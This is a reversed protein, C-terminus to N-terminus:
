QGQMDAPDAVPDIAVSFWVVKGSGAATLTGWADSLRDVLILGRGRLSTPKPLPQATAAGPASDAVEVRLSGQAIEATVRFSTRAHEVANMAIESVMVSVSDRQEATMAGIAALVFRRAELISGAQPAFTRSSKV